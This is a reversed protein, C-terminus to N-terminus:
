NRMIINSISVNQSSTKITATLDTISKALLDRARDSNLDNTGIHLIIHAPKERMSPNMHNKTCRVKSGLFSRIFFKFNELKNSIEYGIVHKILIDGLIVVSKEAPASSDSSKVERLQKKRGSTNIFNDEQPKKIVSEPQSIKEDTATMQQFSKDKNPVINNDFQNNNKSHMSNRNILVERQSEYNQKQIFKTQKSLQTSM